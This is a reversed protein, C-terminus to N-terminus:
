SVFCVLAMLRGVRYDTGRLSLFNYEEFYFCYFLMYYKDMKSVSIWKMENIRGAKLKLRCTKAHKRVIRQLSHRLNWEGFPWCLEFLIVVVFERLFSIQMIWFLTVFIVKYVRSARCHEFGACSNSKIRRM